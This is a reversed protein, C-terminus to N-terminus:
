LLFDKCVLGSALNFSFILSIGVFLRLFASPAVSTSVPVLPVAVVVPALFLFVCCLTPCVVVFVLLPTTTTLGSQLVDPNFSFSSWFIGIGAAVVVGVDAAVAFLLGWWLGGSGVDVVALEVVVVDLKRQALAIVIPM